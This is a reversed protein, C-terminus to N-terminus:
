HVNFLSYFFELEHDWRCFECSDVDDDDDDLLLWRGKKLCWGKCTNRFRCLPFHNRGFMGNSRWLYKVLQKVRKRCEVICKSKRLFRMHELGQKRSEDDQSCLLIMGYVYKAEKHGKESAIKLSELGGINGNPYNFYERLGERYLSELNESERCRKLFSSVKDNPSFQILPFKDLCVQRWVYNEESADLFDKCCIKMSHLDVFSHSAVSAIVEVLLHKPLSKISAIPSAGNNRSGKRRDDKTKKMLRSLAMAPHYQTQPQLFELNILVRNQINHNNFLSYFFELEHDWRCFECSDVDDDDDDDDDLLLWRGKKLCWGKCTNRFRCLPFHNRGFMGNSRWLYKVLQEVKKRCEVICKSNRLFRVHELGHKRSEDDQSCLLIMGYVYKAEKHGKESAIKLSELGGINGNPYNFYERLGERYLSELNESERCRKLFSSVKDNPSFQILPFKDLCVQRWVYNEESANLFDKCCMKINHLDVFSHSAVRAIVEVLLDKPLSKISAIPSSGNNRSGKRKNDNKKKMLRTLAMTPHYQTQPKLIELSILVRINHLTPKYGAMVSTAHSRFELMSPMETFLEFEFEWEWM